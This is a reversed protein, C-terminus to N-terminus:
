ALKGTLAADAANVAQPRPVSVGVDLWYVVNYYYPRDNSMYASMLRVIKSKTFARVCKAAAAKRISEHESRLLADITAESLGRFATLPVKRLIAVFLKEPLELAFVDALRDRGLQYVTEAALEFHTDTESVFSLLSIHADGRRRLSEIVLAIDDWEGFRRLYTVAEVSLDVTGDRLCSRVRPLDVPDARRCLLDLAQRTFQRRSFDELPRAKELVESDNGVLHQLAEFSKRWESRFRDDVAARLAAAYQGFRREALVFFADRDFLPRTEARKVLEEDSLMRLRVKEYESWCEEGNKDRRMWGLTTVPKVVVEKAQEVSFIRGTEELARLADYRVWCDPDALLNEAASAPLASRERLLRTASRRVDPNRHEVAVLLTENSIAAPASFVADVLETRVSIGQFENLVQVARDRSQRMVISLVAEGAVAVTQIDGKEMESRIAPLDTEIGCVGLYKLGAVKVTAPADQAFWSDFFMSRKEAQKAPLPQRILAMAELAGARASRGLVSILPLLPRSLGGVSSVWHWLPVNQHPFHDLAREVLAEREREGLSVSERARFLLNADHIGLVPDDNGHAGITSGLLRFRAVDIARIADAGVQELSDVLTRIFATGEVSLPTEKNTSDEPVAPTADDKTPAQAQDSVASRERARLNKIYRAICRHLKKEFHRTDTFTDFLLTKEEILKKKFALVKKLDDGPDRLFEAPIDKFFLSIEPVGERSRRDVSISFEEEFGSTYGGAIDPPTGWRRWMMGVFLECSELERNIVAQPRGYTSVTDEWGVLEVQYGFEDAWTANFEDVVAKAARREDPLDGPSALFVRVLKRTSPM